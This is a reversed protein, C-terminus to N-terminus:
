NINLKKRMYKIENYILSDWEKQKSNNVSHETELDYKNQLDCWDKNIKAYVNEITHEDINRLSRLTDIFKISLLYTIDFHRQEHSLTKETKNNVVIFSKQKDFIACVEVNVNGKYKTFSYSIGTFSKGVVNNYNSKQCNFDNLTLQKGYIYPLENSAFLKFDYTVNSEIDFPKFSLLFFPLLLLTNKM